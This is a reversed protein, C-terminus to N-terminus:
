TVAVFGDSALVIPNDPLTPDTLCFCDGLGFFASRQNRRLAANAAACLQARFFRLFSGGYMRDFVHQQPEAFLDYALATSLRPAVELIRELQGPGLDNVMLPADDTFHDSLCERLLMGLVSQMRRIKASRHWFHIDEPEGEGELFRSFKYFGISSSLLHLLVGPGLFNALAAQQDPNPPSHAPVNKTAAVRRVEEGTLPRYSLKPYATAISQENSGHAAVSSSASMPSSAYPSAPQAYMAGLTAVARPPPTPLKPRPPPADM